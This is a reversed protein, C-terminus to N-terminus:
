ARKVIISVIGEYKGLPTNEGPAAIFGINKKEGRELFFNNESVELIESINGKVKLGVKVRKDFDNTIEIGRSAIQGPATMGLTLATKNLDFGIKDSVVVSIYIEKKDLIFFSNVLSAISIILAVLALFILVINLSFIKESKRKM